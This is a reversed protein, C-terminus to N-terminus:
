RYVQWFMAQKKASKDVLPFRTYQVWKGQYIVIDTTESAALLTHVQFFSIFIPFM